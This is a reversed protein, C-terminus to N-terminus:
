SRLKRSGAQCQCPQLAIGGGCMSGGVGGGTGGGEHLQGVHVGVGGEEAVARLANRAHAGVLPDQLAQVGRGGVGDVGGQDESSGFTPSPEAWALALTSIMIDVATLMSHQARRRAEGHRLVQGFGLLDAAAAATCAMSTTCLTLTLLM